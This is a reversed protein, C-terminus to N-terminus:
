PCVKLSITRKVPNQVFINSCKEMCVKSESQTSFDGARSCCKQVFSWSVFLLKRINEALVKWIKHLDQFDKENSFLFHLTKEMAKSIKSDPFMYQVTYATFYKLTDLKPQNKVSRM